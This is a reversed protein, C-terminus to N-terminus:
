PDPKVLLVVSLGLFYGLWKVAVYGCTVAFPHRARAAIAEGRGNICVVAIAGAAAGVRCRSQIWVAGIGTQGVPFRNGAFRRRIRVRAGCWVLCQDGRAVPARDGSEAACHDLLLFYCLSFLAIGIVGPILEPSIFDPVVVLPLCLIPLWLSMSRLGNIREAGAEIAVLAISYGILAEVMVSNPQAIGLVALVLSISHGVTFGTVLWIIQRWGSAVLVLALVFALHDIGGLIHEGGIVLYEWFAQWHSFAQAEDQDFSQHYHNRTLVWERMEWGDSDSRLRAKAYHTHTPILEYFANVSIEPTGTCAYEGEVRVYGGRSSLASLPRLSECVEGGSVVEVRQQLYSELLSSLSKQNSEPLRTVERALVTFSM